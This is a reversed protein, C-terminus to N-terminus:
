DGMHGDRICESMNHCIDLYNVHLFFFCQQFSQYLVMTKSLLSILFHKEQKKMFICIHLNENSIGCLSVELSYENSTKMSFSRLAM